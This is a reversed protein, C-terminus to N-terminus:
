LVENDEQSEFKAKDQAPAVFIEFTNQMKGKYKGTKTETQGTYVVKIIDKIEVGKEIAQSLAASGNITFADGKKLVLKEGKLNTDIVDVHVDTNKDNLKSPTMATIQGVVYGNVGWEKYSLFKSSGSVKKFEFM